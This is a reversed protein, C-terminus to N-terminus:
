QYSVIMADLGRAYTSYTPYVTGDREKYFASAVRLKRCGPRCTAPSHSSCVM